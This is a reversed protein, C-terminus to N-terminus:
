EEIWARNKAEELTRGIRMNEFIIDEDYM